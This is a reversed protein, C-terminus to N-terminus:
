MILFSYYEIKYERCAQPHPPLSLAESSCLQVWNFYGPDKIIGSTQQICEKPSQPVKNLNTHEEETSLSYHKYWGQMWSVKGKHLLWSGNKKHKLNSLQKAEKWLQSYYHSNDNNKQDVYILNPAYSLLRDAHAEKNEELFKPNERQSSSKSCQATGRAM